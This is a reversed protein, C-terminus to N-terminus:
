ISWTSVFISERTLTTIVYDRCTYDGRWQSPSGWQWIHQDGVGTTAWAGPQLLSLGGYLGGTCCFLTFNISSHLFSLHTMWYTTVPFANESSCLIITWINNYTCVKTAFAKGFADKVINAYSHSRGTETAYLITAKVRMQYFKRYM